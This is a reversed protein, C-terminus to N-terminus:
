GGRRRKALADGAATAIRNAAELAEEPDVHVTVDGLSIAVTGDLEEADLLPRVAKGHAVARCIQDVRSMRSAPFQYVRGEAM